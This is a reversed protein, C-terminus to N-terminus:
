KLLEKLVEKGKKTLHFYPEIHGCDNCQVFDIQGDTHRSVDVNESQCKICIHKIQSTM